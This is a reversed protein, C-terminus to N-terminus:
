LEAGEGDEEGEESMTEHVDYDNMFKALEIGCEECLDAERRELYRSESNMCEIHAVVHYKQHVRKDYIIGCRDCRIARAM